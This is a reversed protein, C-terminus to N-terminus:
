MGDDVTFLVPAHAMNPRWIVSLTTQPDHKAHESQEAGNQYKWGKVADEVGKQLIKQRPIFSQSLNVLM